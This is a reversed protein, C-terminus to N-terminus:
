DSSGILSGGVGVVKLGLLTGVTGAVGNLIPYKKTWMQFKNMDIIGTNKEAINQMAELMKSEKMLTERFANGKPLLNAVYKNAQGRVTLVIEKKANEGLGQSDLLKKIAPIKDFSQRADFLGATDKNKVHKVFEKVVADYTKEAQKDSAFILNLEDKGNNLQKNLQNTNFPVKKANIYAKVGSNIDDVKSGIANLNQTPTNKRSVIGKVVEAIDKDRKSPMIKSASLLGQETVRGEKLAQEKVATTAKPAVLDEVFSKEKEIKKIKNGKIGGSIGGVVGGLIGGTIAGTTAGGVGSKIIDIANKDEKLGKSVGSSAGYIGGAIAGSKAGQAIGKGITTATTATKAVGPLTGAGVITTGLQLADGVVQKGTLDNQNLLKIAGEGTEQMDESLLSLANELRSTDEGLERKERIKAILKTQIENQQAQTEEIQKSIEKNAIAQGLGQAIKEGGTFSTVKELLSKKPKEEVINQEVEKPKFPTLDINNRKAEVDLAGSRALAELDRAFDSNPNKAAYEFAQRINGQMNTQQYILHSLEM